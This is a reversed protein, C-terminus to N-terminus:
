CPPIVTLVEERSCGPEQALVGLLVQLASIDTSGAEHKSCCLGLFDSLSAERSGPGKACRRLGHGGAARSWSLFSVSFRTQQRTGSVSYAGRNILGRVWLNSRPSAPKTCGPLM